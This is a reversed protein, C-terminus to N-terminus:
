NGKLGVKHVASNSIGLLNAIKRHTLRSDKILKQILEDLYVQNKIVQQGDRLGKEKFYIEIIEQAKELREKEIDEKIDMYEYNDKQRHFEAFLEKNNSFYGLIFRKQREEIITNTNIYETFSSWLYDEFSKVMKAKVPNNHVYRIVQLLYKDDTVLESRYRDQFVHGIRNQQLNFNMAYKINIGKIAKALDDLEAKIVIHVHNDMLCYAAVEILQEEEQKKLCDLFLRKQEDKSFIDERNNGRLMIHYYSTPSQVRAQRSM